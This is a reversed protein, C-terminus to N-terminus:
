GFLSRVVSLVSTSSGRQRPPQARPAQPAAQSAQVAEAPEAGAGAAGAAAAQAAAAPQQEAPAAQQQQKLKRQGAALSALYVAADFCQSGQLTLEDQCGPLRCGFTLVIEEEGLGFIQRISEEFARRGAEGPQIPMSYTQGNHVVTFTPIAKPLSDYAEQWSPLQAACFRCYQEEERGTQQVQWRSLCSRHSLRPCRCPQVLAEDDSSGLCIWCCDEDGGGGSSDQSSHRAPSASSGDSAAAVGTSALQRTLRM